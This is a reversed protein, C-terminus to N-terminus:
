VFALNYFKNVDYHINNWANFNAVKKIGIKTVNCTFKLFVYEQLRLVLHIIIGYIKEFYTVANAITSAWLWTHKNGPDTTMKNVQCNQRIVTKLCRQRLWIKVLDTHIITLRKTYKLQIDQIYWVLYSTSLLM